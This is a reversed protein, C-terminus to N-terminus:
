YIAHLNQPFISFNAQRDTRLFEKLKLIRDVRIKKSIKCRREGLWQLRERKEKNKSTCLIVFLVAMQAQAM